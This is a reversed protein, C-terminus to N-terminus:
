KRIIESLSLVFIRFFRKQGQFIVEKQSRLHCFNTNKCDYGFFAM